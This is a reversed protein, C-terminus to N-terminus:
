ECAASARIQELETITIKAGSGNRASSFIIHVDTFGSISPVANGGMKCTISTGAGSCYHRQGIEQVVSDKTGKIRLSPVNKFSKTSSLKLNVIDGAVVDFLQIDGQNSSNEYSSTFTSIRDDYKLTDACYLGAISDCAQFYDVAYTLAKNTSSGSTVSLRVSTVSVDTIACNAPVTSSSCTFDSYNVGNDTSTEVLFTAKTKNATKTLQLYFGNTEALTKAHPTFNFIKTQNEVGVNTGTIETEVYRPGDTVTDDYVDSATQRVDPNLTDTEITRAFLSTSSLCLIAALLPTYIRQTRIKMQNGKKKIKNTLLNLMLLQKM